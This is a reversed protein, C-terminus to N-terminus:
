VVVQYVVDRSKVELTGDPDVEREFKAILGRRGPETRATRDPTNAWSTHAALSARLTRQEPNLKSM